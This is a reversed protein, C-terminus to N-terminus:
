YTPLKKKTTSIKEERPNPRIPLYNSDSNLKKDEKAQKTTLLINWNDIKRKSTKIM